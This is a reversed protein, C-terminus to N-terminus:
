ALIHLVCCYFVLKVQIQAEVKGALEPFDVFSLPDFMLRDNIFFQIKDYDIDLRKSLLVKGYAVDQGSFVDLLVQNEDPLTCTLKIPTGRLEQEQRDFDSVGQADFQSPFM